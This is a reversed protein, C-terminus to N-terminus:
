QLMIHKRKNIGNRAKQKKQTTVQSCFIFFSFINSVFLNVRKKILLMLSVWLSFAVLFLSFHKSFCFYHYNPQEDAIKLLNKWQFEKQKLFIFYNTSNERSPRPRPATGRWWGFIKENRGVQVRGGGM